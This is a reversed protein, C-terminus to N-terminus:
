SYTDNVSVTKGCGCVDQSEGVARPGDVVSSQLTLFVDTNLPARTASGGSRTQRNDWVFM